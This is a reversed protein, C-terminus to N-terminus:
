AGKVKSYDIMYGEDTDIVAVHNPDLKLLDQAMLGIFKGNGHKTDKYEFEYTPLNGFFSRSLKIINKKLREDSAALAALGFGAGQGLVGGIMKGTNTRSFPNSNEEKQWRSLDIGYAQAEKELDYHKFALDLERVKNSQNNAAVEKQFGLTANFQGSQLDRAKQTQSAEFGRSAEAQSTQFDQTGKQQAENADIGAIANEQTQILNQDQVQQAKVEAGGPGGGM